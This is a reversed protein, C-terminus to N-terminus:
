AFHIMHNGGSIRGYDLELLKLDRIIGGPIKKMLERGRYVNSWILRLDKSTSSIPMITCTDRQRLPQAKNRIFTLIKRFENIQKKDRTKPVIFPPVDYKDITRPKPRVAEIQEKERDDFEKIRKAIEELLTAM